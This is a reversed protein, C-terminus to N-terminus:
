GDPVYVAQVVVVRLGVSLMWVSELCNAVFVVAVGVLPTTVKVFYLVAVISAVEVKVLIALWVTIVVTM